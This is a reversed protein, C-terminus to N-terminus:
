PAPGPSCYLKFCNGALVIALCYCVPYVVWLGQVSSSSARPELEIKSPSAEDGDVDDMQRKWHRKVLCENLNSIESKLIYSRGYLLM